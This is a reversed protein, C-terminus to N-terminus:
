ELITVIIRIITIMKIIKIMSGSKELNVSLKLFSTMDLRISVVFSNTLATCFDSALGSDKM